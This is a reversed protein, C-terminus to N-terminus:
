VHKGKNSDGAIKDDLVVMDTERPVDSILTLMEGAKRRDETSFGVVSGSVFCLNNFYKYFM